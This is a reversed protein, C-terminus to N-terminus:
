MALHYISSFLVNAKLFQPQLTTGLVVLLRIESRKAWVELGQAYSM